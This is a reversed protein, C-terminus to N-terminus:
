QAAERLAGGDKALRTGRQLYCRRSFLMDHARGSLGGLEVLSDAQACVLEREQGHIMCFLNYRWFPARRPRRYCLTVFPQAAFLEGIEDVAVDDVDFVVM